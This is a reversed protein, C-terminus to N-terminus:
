EYHESVRYHEKPREIHQSQQLIKQLQFTLYDQMQSAIQHLTDIDIKYCINDKRNRIWFVDPQGGDILDFGQFLFYLQENAPMDTTEVEYGLYSIQDLLPNMFNNCGSLDKWGLLGELSTNLAYALKKLTLLSIQQNERNEYQELTKEGINTKKSLEKLSMKLKARLTKLNKPFAQLEIPTPHMLKALPLTGEWGMLYAPSVGLANAIAEIKDSPINSIIGNEYKYISQKTSQVKEALETQTMGIDERRLKIREGVKM